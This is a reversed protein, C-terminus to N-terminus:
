EHGRGRHNDRCAVRGYVTSGPRLEVHGGEVLQRSLRDLDITGGACVVARAVGCEDLTSMLREAAGRRPTLRVHFDAVSQATM